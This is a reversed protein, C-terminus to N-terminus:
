HHSTKLWRTNMRWMITHYNIMFFTQYKKQPDKNSHGLYSQKILSDKFNLIGNQYWQPDNIEPWNWRRCLVRSKKEKCKQLTLIRQKSSMVMKLNEMLVFSVWFSLFYSCNLFLGPGLIASSPTFCSGFLHVFGLIHKFAWFNVM